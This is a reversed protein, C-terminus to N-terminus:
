LSIERVVEAIKDRPATKAVDAQAVIGCCREDVDIVFVRRIQNAEMLDCCEDLDDEPTMTICPASMCDEVRLFSPDRGIALSRLVIDRDTIVGIPKMNTLDDVVPLAGFNGEGMLRAAHQLSMEPTCCIPADTMIERLQM